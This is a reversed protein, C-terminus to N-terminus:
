RVTGYTIADIDLDPLPISQTAGEGEKGYWGFDVLKLGDETILIDQEARSDGKLSGCASIAELKEMVVFHIGTGVEHHLLDPAPFM